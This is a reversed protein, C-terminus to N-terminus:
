LFRTVSNFLQATVEEDNTRAVDIAGAVGVASAIGFYRLERLRDVTLIQQTRSIDRHISRASEFYFQTKCTNKNDSHNPSEREHERCQLLVLILKLLYSLIRSKQGSRRLSYSFFFGFYPNPRSAFLEYKNIHVYMVSSRM